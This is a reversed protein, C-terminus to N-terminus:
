IATALVEVAQPLDRPCNDHVAALAAGNLICGILWYWGLAKM